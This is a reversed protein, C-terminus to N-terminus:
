KKKTWLITLIRCPQKRNFLTNASLRFCRYILLLVEAEKLYAVIETSYETVLLPDDSEAAELDDWKPSDPRLVQPDDADVQMTEDDVREEIQLRRSEYVTDLGDDGEQQPDSQSPLDFEVDKDGKSEQPVDVRKKKKARKLAECQIENKQGSSASPTSPEVESSRRRKQGAPLDTELRLNTLAAVNPMPQSVGPLEDVNSVIHDSHRIFKPSVPIVADVCTVEITLFLPRLVDVFSLRMVDDPLQGAKEQQADTSLPSDRCAILEDM